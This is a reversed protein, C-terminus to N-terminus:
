RSNQTNTSKEPYTGNEVQSAYRDYDNLPDDDAPGLWTDAIQRFLQDSTAESMLLVNLLAPPLPEAPTITLRQLPEWMTGPSPETGAPAIWIGHLPAGRYKYITVEYSM